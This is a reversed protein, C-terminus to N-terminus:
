EENTQDLTKRHKLYIFIPVLASAFILAIVFKYFENNQSFLVLALFSAAAVFKLTHLLSQVYFLIFFVPNLSQKKWHSKIYKDLRETVLRGNEFKM